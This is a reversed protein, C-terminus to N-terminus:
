CLLDDLPIEQCQRRPRKPQGGNQHGPSNETTSIRNDNFSINLYTGKSKIKLCLNHTRLTDDKGKKYGGTRTVLLVKIQFLKTWALVEKMEM